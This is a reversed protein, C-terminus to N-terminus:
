NVFKLLDNILLEGFIFFFGGILAVGHQKTEAISGLSDAVCGGSRAGVSLWRFDDFKLGTELAGFTM